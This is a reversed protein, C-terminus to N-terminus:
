QQARNRDWENYLYQQATGNNEWDAFDKEREHIHKDDRKRARLYHAVKEM